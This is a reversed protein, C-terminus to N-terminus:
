NKRRQTLIHRWQRKREEQEPIEFSLSIENTIGQYSAVGDCAYKGYRRMVRRWWSARACACVRDSLEFFARELVEGDLVRKGEHQDDGSWEHVVLSGHVTARLIM